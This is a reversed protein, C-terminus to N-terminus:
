VRCEMLIKKILNGLVEFDAIQKFKQHGRKAINEGEERNKYVWLIKEALDKPNDPEVLILEEKDNFFEEIAPTRATIVLAGCALADYVKNPVVRIAKGSGKFIGLVVHSSSILDNLDERDMWDIFEINKLNNMEVMKKVDGYLQGRGVFIFKIKEDKLAKAAEVITEVGHLPIYKGIYIVTFDERKNINNKIKFFEKV